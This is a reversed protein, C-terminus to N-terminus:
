YIARHQRPTRNSKQLKMGYRLLRSAWTRCPMPSLFITSEKRSPQGSEMQRTTSQISGTYQPRRGARVAALWATPSDKTAALQQFLTSIHLDFLYNQHTAITPQRTEMRQTLINQDLASSLFLPPLLSSPFLHISQLLM